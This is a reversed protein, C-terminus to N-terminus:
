AKQRPSATSTRTSSRSVSLSRQTSVKCGTAAHRARGKASGAAFGAAPSRRHCVGATFFLRQRQNSTAAHASPPTDPGPPSVPAESAASARGTSPPISTPKRSTARTSAPSSAQRSPSAQLASSSPQVMSMQRSPSHTLSPGTSQSSLMAQVTSRHTAELESSKAQSCSASAVLQKMSPAHWAAPSGLGPIAHSAQSGAVEVLPHDAALLPVHSSPSAHVVASTHVASPQTPTGVPSM